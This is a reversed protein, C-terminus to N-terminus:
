MGKEGTSMIIGYWGSAKLQLTVFDTLILQLHNAEWQVSHALKVANEEEISELPILDLARSQWPM